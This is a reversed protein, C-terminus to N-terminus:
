RYYDFNFLYFASFYFQEFVPLANHREGKSGNNNQIQFLWSKRENEEVTRAIIRIQFLIFNVDEM